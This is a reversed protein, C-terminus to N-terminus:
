SEIEKSKNGIAFKILCNSMCYFIQLFTDKKSYFNYMKGYTGGFDGM